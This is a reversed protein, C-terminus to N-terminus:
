RLRPPRRRSPTAHPAKKALSTLSTYPHRELMMGNFMSRAAGHHRLVEDFDGILVNPGAARHSQGTVTECSLQLEAITHTEFARDVAPDLDELAHDDVEVFFLDLDIQRDALAAQVSGEIV